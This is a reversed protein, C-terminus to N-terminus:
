AGVVPVYRYFWRVLVFVILAPFWYQVIPGVIATIDDVPIIPNLMARAYGAFVGVFSIAQAKGPLSMTPLLLAFGDVVLGVVGLLLDTIM